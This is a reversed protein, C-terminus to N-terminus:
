QGSLESSVEVWRDLILTGEGEELAQDIRLMADRLDSVLETDDAGGVSEVCVLAAAANLVVADRVDMVQESPAQSLADRAIGANYQADGGDLAGQSALSLGLDEPGIVVERVARGRCDWVRTPAMTTMEDLGDEGRVVLASTGRRNLADAVKPALLPDAVGVVQAEPRAPNALPGLINFVTPVGLERRVPGAHRMSPHFVPAFCFAIGVRDLCPGILEPALDVSVGLAELVDASGSKSTAARNGHKVVRVGAAAVAVAAMTSINVSGSNDGGTGCTDVTPGDVVVPVSSELMVSVMAALERGTVGKSRLAVLFGAMQAASATGAMVERLAWIVAQDTLDDGDLLSTIVQSWTFTNSARTM